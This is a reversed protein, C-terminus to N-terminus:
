QPVSLQPFVRTKKCDSRADRSEAAKRFLSRADGLAAHGASPAILAAATAISSPAAPTCSPVLRQNEVAHGGHGHCGSRHHAATGPQICLLALFPGRMFFNKSELVGFVGDRWCM